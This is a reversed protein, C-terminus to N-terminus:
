SQFAYGDTKAALQLMNVMTVFELGISMDLSRQCRMVLSQLSDLVFAGKWERGEVLAKMSQIWARASGDNINSLLGHSLMAVMESAIAGADITSAPERVAVWGSAEGDDGIRGRQKKKKHRTGNRSNPLIQHPVMANGSDGGSGGGGGITNSYPVIAKRAKIRKSQRLSSREEM